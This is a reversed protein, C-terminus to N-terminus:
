GLQKQYGHNHEGSTRQFQGNVPETVNSSSRVLMINLGVLNSIEVRRRTFQSVEAFHHLFHLM